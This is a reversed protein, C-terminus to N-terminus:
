DEIMRVRVDSAPSSAAGSLLPHMYRQGDRTPTGCPARFLKVKREMQAAVDRARPGFTAEDAGPNGFLVREYAACALHRELVIPNDVDVYARELPADFLARPHRM